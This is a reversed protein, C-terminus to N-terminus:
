YAVYLTGTFDRVRATGRVADAEYPVPTNGAIIPQLDLSETSLAEPEPYITVDAHVLGALSFHQRRGVPVPM